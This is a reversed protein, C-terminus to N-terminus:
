RCLNIEAFIPIPHLCGKESPYIIQECGRQESTSPISGMKVGLSPDSMEPERFCSPFFVSSSPSDKCKVHVHSNWSVGKWVWIDYQQSDMDWSIGILKTVNKKLTFGKKRHKPVSIGPMKNALAKKVADNNEAPVIQPDVIDPDNQTWTGHEFKSTFFRQKKNLWSKEIEDWPSNM